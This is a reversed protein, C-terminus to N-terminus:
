RKGRLEYDGNVQYVRFTQNLDTDGVPNWVNTDSNYLYYQNESTVKVLTNKKKGIYGALSDFTSVSPSPFYGNSLKFRISRGRRGLTFPTSSVINRNIFRDGWKATGWVSIQNSMQNIGSVDNYDIEFTINVDSKRDDYTHAVLFFDRFQKYNNAEDMDFPKSYWHAEFPLGLDYYDESFQALRGDSRGWILTDELSYFGRADLNNYMTWARHLYSYILVKDKMSLYWEDQFYISCANALDARELDVPADFFSLKQTLITTSLIRQDSRISALSYVNGDHGLFFLYNNVINASRNNAFGTHTNMRKLQFVESGTDPRNTNGTIVYIDHQRGVVVAGDYVTMGMIKDSNPPLQMPLISPFYYPNSIASIFVNDNDKDSGSAFMRGNHNVLYKIDTPVVNEGKYTDTKENQCPEYWVKKNTYDYKTVGRVEATGLPTYGTPPSTLEMLIFDPIATGVLVEYTSGTQPFKGYVYIKVGDSFFYKGNYNTGTILGAVTAVLTSGFYVKTNTARILIDSDTYPMFQDVYRVEDDLQMTDYYQTGYRKEMVTDNNFRMNLLDSSENVQLENSRNNLGGVFNKLSFNLLKNPPPTTKQIYAM